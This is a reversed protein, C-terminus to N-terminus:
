SRAVVPAGLPPPGSTTLLGRAASFADGASPVVFSYIELCASEPGGGAAPIVGWLCMTLDRQAVCRLWAEFSIPEELPVGGPPAKPCYGAAFGSAPDEYFLAATTKARVVAEDLDPKKEGAM